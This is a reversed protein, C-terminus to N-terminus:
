LVSYLLSSLHHFIILLSPFLLFFDFLLLPDFSQPFLLLVASIFLVHLPLFCFSSLFSPSCPLTPDSALCNPYYGAILLLLGGVGSFVVTIMDKDKSTICYGCIQCLACNTPNCAVDTPPILKCTILYTQTWPVRASFPPKSNSTLWQGLRLECTM